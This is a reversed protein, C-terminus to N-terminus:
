PKIGYLIPCLVYIPAPLRESSVYINQTQPCLCLAERIVLEGTNPHPLALCRPQRSFATDWTEVSEKEYWYANKYTLIVMANGDLRLDMATPQSRFKGYKDKLDEPTPAPLSTLRAVPTAVYVGDSNKMILPLEYLVPPVTRKSLLYIKQKVSDVAVAECDRSGDEYSFTMKACVGLSEPNQKNESLNIEPERVMYLCCSSRMAMNDGVDAILLYSERGLTFSSLDEWDVNPANKISFEGLVQGTSSVGFLVNANGSDNIMWLLGKTKYSGALGSIEPLDKDTVKGSLSPNGYSPAELATGTVPCTFWCAWLFLPSLIIVKKKM